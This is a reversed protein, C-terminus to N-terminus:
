ELGCAGGCCGSACSPIDNSASSPGASIKGVNSVSMLRKYNKSECSPCVVDDVVERGIHFIEYKSGCDKCAYEYLPM